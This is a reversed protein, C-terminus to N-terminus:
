RGLGADTATGPPLALADRLAEWLLAQDLESLQPCTWRGAMYLAKAAEYLEVSM